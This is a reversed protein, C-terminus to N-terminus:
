IDWEDEGGAGSSYCRSRSIIVEKIKSTTGAAIFLASSTSNWNTIPDNNLQTRFEFNYRITISETPAPSFTFTLDTFEEQTTLNDGSTYQRFHTTGQSINVSTSKRTTGDCYYYTKAM